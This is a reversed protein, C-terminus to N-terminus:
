RKGAPIYLDGDAGTGFIEPVKPKASGIFLPKGYITSM